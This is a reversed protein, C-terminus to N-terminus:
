NLKIESADYIHCHQRKNKKIDCFFTAWFIESKRPYNVKVMEKPKIPAVIKVYLKPIGGGPHVGGERLSVMM